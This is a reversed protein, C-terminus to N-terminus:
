AIKKERKSFNKVFFGSFIIVRDTKGSKGLARKDM